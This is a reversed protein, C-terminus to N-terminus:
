SEDPLAPAATVLSVSHLCEPNNQKFAFRLQGWPRASQWVSAEHLSRGRPASVLLLQGYQAEIDDRGICAGSLFLGLTGQHAAQEKNLVTFGIQAIRVNERLVLEGGVWRTRFEDTKELQLPSGLTQEVKSKTLPGQQALQEIIQWLTFSAQNMRQNENTTSCATTSAVVLYAFLRFFLRKSVSTTTM